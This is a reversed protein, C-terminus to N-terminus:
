VRMDFFNNGGEKYVQVYYNVTPFRPAPLNDVEYWGWGDCKEPELVVPEGSKWDATFGIGVFHKPMFHLLNYVLLFKVNEIEMGTEELVERKVADVISEGYEMKGGPFAFEGAGHSGKRKGMLVKGDRFIMVSLGVKLENM